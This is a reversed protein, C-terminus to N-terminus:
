KRSFTFIRLHHSNYLFAYPSSKYPSLTYHHMNHSDLSDCQTPFYLFRLLGSPHLFPKPRHLYLHSRQNRSMLYELALGIICNIIEHLGFWACTEFHMWVSCVYYVCVSLRLVPRFISKLTQKEYRIHHFQISNCMTLIYLRMRHSHVPDCMTYTYLFWATFNFITDAVHHFHLSIDRPHLIGNIALIYPFDYPSFIFFRM